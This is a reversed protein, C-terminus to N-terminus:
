EMLLGNKSLEDFEEDSIPVAKFYVSMDPEMNGAFGCLASEEDTSELCAIESHIPVIKYKTYNTDIGKVEWAYLSYEGEMGEIKCIACDKSTYKIVEYKRGRLKGKIHKSNKIYGTREMVVKENKNM